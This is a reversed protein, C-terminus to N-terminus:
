QAAGAQEALKADILEKLKPTTINRAYEIGLDDAQTKLADRDLGGDDTGAPEPMEFWGTAYAIAHEAPSLDAEITQKPEIWRHGTTTNVGRLGPETNTIKM